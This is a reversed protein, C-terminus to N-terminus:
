EEVEVNDLMLKVTTNYAKVLLEPPIPEQKYEGTRALGAMVGDVIQEIVDLLNVDDQLFEPNKIHHREERQHLEWWDREQFKSQFNRYFDDIHEIKTHDHTIVQDAFHQVLAAIGDLVDKIHMKTQMLLEEKSVENVNCTRSDARQSRKIKIKEM